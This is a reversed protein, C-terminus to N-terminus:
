VSEVSKLTSCACCGNCSLLFRRHGWGTVATLQMETFQKVCVPCVKSIESAYEAEAHFWDSACSSRRRGRVPLQVPPLRDADPGRAGETPEEASSNLGAMAEKLNLTGEGGFPVVTMWEYDDSGLM